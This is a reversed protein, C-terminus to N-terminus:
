ACERIWKALIGNGLSYEIVFSTYYEEFSIERECSSWHRIITYVHLHKFIRFNTGYRNCNRGNTVLYKTNLM